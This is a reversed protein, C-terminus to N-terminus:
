EEISFGNMVRYLLIKDFMSSDYDVILNLIEVLDTHQLDDTFSLIRKDIPIPDPGTITGTYTAGATANIKDYVTVTFSKDKGYDRVNYWLKGFNNIVKAGADDSDSAWVSVKDWIIDNGIAINCYYYKMSHM